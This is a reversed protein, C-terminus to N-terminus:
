GNSEHKKGRSYYIHGFEDFTKNDILAHYKNDLKSRLSDLRAEMSRLQSIEPLTSKRELLFARLAYICDKIHYIDKALLAHETLDIDKRKKMEAGGTTKTGV